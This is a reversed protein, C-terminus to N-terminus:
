GNEKDEEQQKIIDDVEPLYRRSPAKSDEEGCPTEAHKTLTRASFEWGCAGCKPMLWRKRRATTVSLRDPSAIAVIPRVIV